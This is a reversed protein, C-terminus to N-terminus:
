QKQTLVNQQRSGIRSHGSLQVPTVKAKNNPERSFLFLHYALATQPINPIQIVKRDGICGKALSSM